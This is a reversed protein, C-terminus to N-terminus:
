SRPSALIVNTVVLLGSVESRSLDAAEVGAHLAHIGDIIEEMDAALEDSTRPLVDPDKERAMEDVYVRGAIHDHVEWLGSFALLSSAIRQGGAFGVRGPAISIGEPCHSGQATNYTLANIKGLAFATFRGMGEPAVGGLWEEDAELPQWAEPQSQRNDAMLSLKKPTTPDLPNYAGHEVSDRGIVLALGVGGIDHYRRHVRSGPLILNLAAEVRTFVGKAAVPDHQVEQALSGVRM